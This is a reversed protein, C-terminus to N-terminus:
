IKYSTLIKDILEGTEKAGDERSNHNIEGNTKHNNNHNPAGNIKNHNNVGNTKNPNTEGAKIKVGDEKSSNHNNVGNTVKIVLVLIRDKGVVKIKNNTGKILIIIGEVKLM